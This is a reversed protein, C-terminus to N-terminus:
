QGGFGCKAPLPPLNLGPMNFAPNAAAAAVDIPANASVPAATAAAVEPAAVPPPPVVPAGPAVPPAGAAAGAAKPAVKVPPLVMWKSQSSTVVIGQFELAGLNSDPAIWTLAKPAPKNASSTQTLTSGPTSTGGCVDDLTKFDNGVLEWKGVNSNTNSRAYLLLGKFTNAPDGAKPQVSITLKDGTAYSPASVSITWGLGQDDSGGMGGAVANADVSCIPSGDPDAYVSSMSALAAALLFTIKKLM